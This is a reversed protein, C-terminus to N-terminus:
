DEERIVLSKGRYDAPSVNNLRSAVIKGRVDFLRVEAGFRTFHGKSDLVLVSLSRRKAEDPLANRFVFHGGTPGYGDTLTLDLGGDNDYDGWANSYSNAVGLLDPQVSTFTPHTPASPDVAPAPPTAVCATLMPFLAALSLRAFPTNPLHKKM